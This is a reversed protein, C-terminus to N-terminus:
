ISNNGSGAELIKGLLMKIENIDKKLSDVEEVITQRHEKEKQRELKRQKAMEIESKNINLIAGTENDKVFGPKDMIKSYKDM